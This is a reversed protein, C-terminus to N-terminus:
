GSASMFFSPRVLYVDDVFVYLFRPLDLMSTPIQWAKGIYGHVIDAYLSFSIIKLFLFVQMGGIAYM